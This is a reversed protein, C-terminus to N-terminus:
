TRPGFIATGVRILTSGAQIAAKFDASMGMSLTDMPNKLALNIDTFLTTLRQFSAIQLPLEKEPRPITMLGRLRLHPLSSIHTALPLIDMVDVGSKTDEHDLNVQICINLPSSEEPRAKNLRDAIAETSVTHVWNFHEAIAKTKNSQIGGIFHWEIPLQKLANIKILAEQLYNEGFRTIGAHFAETIEAPTRQKSVALLQVTNLPRHADIETQRIDQQIHKINNSISM